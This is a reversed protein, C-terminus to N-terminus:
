QGEGQESRQLKPAPPPNTVCETATACLCHLLAASFIIDKGWQLADCTESVQLAYFAEITRETLSM